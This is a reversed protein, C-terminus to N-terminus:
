VGDAAGGDWRAAWPMAATTRAWALRGAADTIVLGGTSGVRAGLLELADRAASEALVGQRLAAVVRATLTVRLIGEGHGTASAAGAGNEAYTGAGLIPSDGVRGRRKGTTGGTSTAAAVNGHLDRAVAGVTSGPDGVARGALLRELRERARETVLAGPAVEELGARGAMERAGEAAYLVHRGDVLAAHAALVANRYGCLVCVAGARLESGEM